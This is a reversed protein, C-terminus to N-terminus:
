SLATRMAIVFDAADDLATRCIGCALLHEEIAATETHPLGGCVMSNWTM